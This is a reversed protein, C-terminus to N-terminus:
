LHLKALRSIAAVFVQYNRSNINAWFAADNASSLYGHLMVNRLGILKKCVTIEEADFWDPALGPRDATGLLVNTGEAILALYYVLQARLANPLKHSSDNELNEIDRPSVQSKVSELLKLNEVISDLYPEALKSTM